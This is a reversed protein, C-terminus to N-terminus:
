RAYAARTLRKLRHFEEETLLGAAVMRQGLDIARQRTEDSKRRNQKRPLLVLNGLENGLQPFEAVPIVHDVEYPEGVGSGSPVLPSKGSKMRAVNDATFLAVREAYEFNWLLNYKVLEGHAGADGNVKLAEDITKSPLVGDRRGEYLWALIKLFRENSARKGQLTAIKAPDSLNAVAVVPTEEGQIALPMLAAAFVLVRVLSMVRIDACVLAACRRGNGQYPRRESADAARRPAAITWNTPCRCGNGFKM